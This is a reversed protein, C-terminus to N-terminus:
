IKGMTGKGEGCVPTLHHQEAAGLHDVEGSHLDLSSNTSVLAAAPPPGEGFLLHTEVPLYSRMRM